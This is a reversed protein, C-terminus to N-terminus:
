LLVVKPHTCYQDFAISLIPGSVLSLLVDDDDGFVSIFWLLNEFSKGFNRANSDTVHRKDKLACIKLCRKLHSVGRM